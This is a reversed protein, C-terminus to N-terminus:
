VDGTIYYSCVYLISNHFYMSLPNDIICENVSDCFEDINLSLAFSSRRKSLLIMLLKRLMSFYGEDRSNGILAMLVNEVVRDIFFHKSGQNSLISGMGGVINISNHKLMSFNFVEGILNVPNFLSNKIFTLYPADIKKFANRRILIKMGNKYTILCHNKVYIENFSDNVIEITVINTRDSLSRAHTPGRIVIGSMRRAINKEPRKYFNSRIPFAVIKNHNGGKNKGAIYSGCLRSFMNETESIMVAINTLSVVKNFKEVSAQIEIHLQHLNERENEILFCYENVFNHDQALKEIMEDFWPMYKRKPIESFDKQKMNSDFNCTKNKKGIGLPDKITVPIMKLKSKKSCDYINFTRADEDLTDWRLKFSDFFLKLDLDGSINEVEEADIMNVFEDINIDDEEFANIHNKWITPLLKGDWTIDPYDNIIHDQTLKKFLNEIKINELKIDLDDISLSEETKEEHNYFNSFLKLYENLRQNNFVFETVNVVENYLDFSLGEREFANKRLLVFNTVKSEGPLHYDGRSYVIQSTYPQVTILVTNEDTDQDDLYENSRQIPNLTLKVEILLREKTDIIDFIKTKREMKWLDLYKNQLQPANPTGELLQFRYYQDGIYEEESYDSVDEYPSDIDCDDESGEELEKNKEIEMRLKKSTSPGECLFTELKREEEVKRKMKMYANLTQIPASESAELNCLLLCVMDHALSMEKSQWTSMDWHTGRNGFVEVFRSPYLAADEILIKYKTEM